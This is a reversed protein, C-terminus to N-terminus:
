EDDGEKAKAADLRAAKAAQEANWRAESEFRDVMHYDVYGEDDIWIGCSDDEEYRSM